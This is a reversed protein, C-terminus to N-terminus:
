NRQNIKLYDLYYNYWYWLKEWDFGEGPDKKGQGAGRVADGSVLSHPVITERTVEPHRMSMLAYWYGGSQYQQASYCDPEKIARLYSGYTHTGAVLFECGLFYRNLNKLGEFESKGAHDAIHTAPVWDLITGTTTIMGHVELGLRELWIPAYHRVGGNPSLIWEGMSHVIAGKVPESDTRSRVAGVPWSNMYPIDM